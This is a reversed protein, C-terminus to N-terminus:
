ALHHHAGREDNRAATTQQSQIGRRRRKQERGEIERHTFPIKITCVLGHGTTTAQRLHIDVVEVLNIVLYQSSIHTGGQDV